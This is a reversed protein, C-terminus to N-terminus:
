FARELEYKACRRCDRARDRTLPPQHSESWQHGRRWCVFVRRFLCPLWFSLGLEHYYM